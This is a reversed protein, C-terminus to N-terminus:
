APVQAFLVRRVAEFIFAYDDASSPTSGAIEIRGLLRVWQAQLQEPDLQLAAAQAALAFQFSEEAIFDQLAPSLAPGSEESPQRLLDGVSLALGGAIRQLADLTPNDLVERELDSLYAVSLGSREALTHLTLKREQRLQRLRPGLPTSPAEVGM